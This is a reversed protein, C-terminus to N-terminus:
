SEAHGVDGTKVNILYSCLIVISIIWSTYFVPDYLPNGSLWFMWYFVYISLGIQPLSKDIGEKVTLELARKGVFFYALMIVVFVSLGVIGTECLLQLFVNHGQNIGGSASRATSYDAFNQWGIGTWINQNFLRIMQVYIATRGSTVVNIDLSKDFLVAFRSVIPINPMFISLLRFGIILGLLILVIKVARNLRKGPIGSFYFVIIGTAFMYLIHARKNTAILAILLFVIKLFRGQRNVSEKSALFAEIFLSLCIYLATFSVQPNLGSVYGEKASSIYSTAIDSSFLINAYTYSISPFIVAIIVSWAYLYGIKRIMGILTLCEDDDLRYLLVIEFGIFYYLFNSHPETSWAIIALFMCVIGIVYKDLQIRKGCLFAIIPIMVIVVAEDVFGPSLYQFLFLFGFFFALVALPINNLRVILKLHM